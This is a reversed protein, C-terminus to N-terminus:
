SAPGSARRGPATPRSTGHRLDEVRVLTTYTTADVEALSFEGIPAPGDLAATVVAYPPPASGNTPRLLNLWEETFPHEADIVYIWDDGHRVSLLDDAWLTLVRDHDPARTLGTFGIRPDALDFSCDPGVLLQLLPIAPRPRGQPTPRGQLYGLQCTTLVERHRVRSWTEFLQVYTALDALQAPCRRNTDPFTM